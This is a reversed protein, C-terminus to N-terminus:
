LPQPSIIPLTGNTRYNAGVVVVNRSQAMSSGDYMPLAAHGFQLNGGYIWFMVPFGGPPPKTTPAWVNLYLCDESEVPMPSSFIKITLNRAKEPDLRTLV